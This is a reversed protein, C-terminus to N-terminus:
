ENGECEEEILLRVLLTRSHCDYYWGGVQVGEAYTKAWEDVVDQMDVEDITLITGDDEGM